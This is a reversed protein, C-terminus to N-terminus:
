RLDLWVVLNNAESMSGVASKLQIVFEAGANRHRRSVGSRWPSFWHFGALREVSPTVDRGDAEQTQASDARRRTDFARYVCLDKVRIDLM